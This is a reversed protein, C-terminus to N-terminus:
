AHRKRLRDIRYTPNFTRIWIHEADNAGVISKIKQLQEESESRSYKHLLEGNMTNPYHLVYTSMTNATKDFITVYLYEGNAHYDYYVLALDDVIIPDFIAGTHGPILSNKRLVVFDLILLGINRHTNTVACESKRNPIDHIFTSDIVDVVRERMNNNIYLITFNNYFRGYSTNCEVILEVRIWRSDIPKPERINAIVPSSFQDAVVFAIKTDRGVPELLLFDIPSTYCLVVAPDGDVLRFGVVETCDRVKIPLYTTTRISNLAGIQSLRYHTVLEKFDWDDVNFRVTTDLITIIKKMQYGRIGDKFITSICVSIGVNLANGM